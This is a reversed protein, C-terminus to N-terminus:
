NGRMARQRESTVLNAALSRGQFFKDLPGKLGNAASELRDKLEAAALEGHLYM